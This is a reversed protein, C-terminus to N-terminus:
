FGLDLKRKGESRAEGVLIPPIMDPVDQTTDGRLYIISVGAMYLKNELENKVSVRGILYRFCSTLCANVRSDSRQILLWELWGLGWNSERRCVIQGRDGGKPPFCIHM